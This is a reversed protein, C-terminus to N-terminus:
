DPGGRIYVGQGDTTAQVGYKKCIDLLLQRNEEKRKLLYSLVAGDNNAEFIMNAQEITM